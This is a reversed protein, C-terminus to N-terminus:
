NGRRRPGPNHGGETEPDENAEDIIEQQHSLTSNNQLEITNEAEPAIIKKAKPLSLSLQKDNHEALAVGTLLAPLGIM